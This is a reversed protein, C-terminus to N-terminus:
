DQQEDGSKGGEVPDLEDLELQAKVWEWYGLTTDSNAVEYKWDERPFQPHSGWHGYEDQLGM